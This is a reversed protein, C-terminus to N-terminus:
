TAEDPKLGQALLAVGGLHIAFGPILWLLGDNNLTWAAALMATAISLLGVGFAVM